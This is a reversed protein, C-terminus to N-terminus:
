QAPGPRCDESGMILPYGPILTGDLHISQLACRKEEASTRFFLPPFPPFFFLFPFSLARETKGFTKFVMAGQCILCLKNTPDRAPSVPLILRLGENLHLRSPNLLKPCDAPVSENDTYKEARNTADVRRSNRANWHEARTYEIELPINGIGLGRKADCLRHMFQPPLLQSFDACTRHASFGKKEADGDCPMM